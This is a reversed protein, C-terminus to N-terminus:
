EAIKRLWNEKWFFYCSRDCGERGYIGRGHCIGGELIVTDKIKRMVHEHEDLIRRVPKLVRLRRGSFEVMPKLFKLGGCKGDADLTARLEELPLVEVLDGAALGTRMRRPPIERSTGDALEEWRPHGGYPEPVGGSARAMLAVVRRRLGLVRGRLRRLARELGNLPVVADDLWRLQCMELTSSRLGGPEPAAGALQGATTHTPDDTM